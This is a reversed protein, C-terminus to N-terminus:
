LSLDMFFSLNGYIITFVIGLGALIRLYKVNKKYSIVMWLLFNVLIISLTLWVSTSILSAAFVATLMILLLCLSLAMHQFFGSSEKLYVAMWLSYASFFLLLAMQLVAAFETFYIVVFAFPVMLIQLILPFVYLLIRKNTNGTKAEENLEEGQTYLALLFDCYMRPLLNHEKWYNIEKIIIAKRDDAM